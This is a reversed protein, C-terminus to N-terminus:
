LWAYSKWLSAKCLCHVRTSHCKAFIISIWSFSLKRYYNQRLLGPQVVTTQYPVSDTSFRALKFGKKILYFSGIRFTVANRRCLKM